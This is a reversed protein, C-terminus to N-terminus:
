SKKLGEPLIFQAFTLSHPFIHANIKLFILLAAVPAAKICFVGV